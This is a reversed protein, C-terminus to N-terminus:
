RVEFRNNGMPPNAMASNAPHTTGTRAKVASSPRDGAPAASSHAIRRYTTGSPIATIPSAGKSVQYEKRRRPNRVYGAGPNAVCLALAAWIWPNRTVENRFLGSTPHRMNFVHWLQALVLTLFPVTVTAREDLELWLHGLALAGFTTATLAVGHFITALWQAGGLIPQKPDRPSHKLIGREGEGM